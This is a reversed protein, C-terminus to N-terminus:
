SLLNLYLLGGGDERRGRRDPAPSLSVCPAPSPPLNPPECCVLIEFASTVSEVALPNRQPPPARLPLANNCKSLRSAGRRCERCCSVLSTVVGLVPGLSVSPGTQCSIRFTNRAPTSAWDPQDRGAGPGASTPPSCPLPPGPVGGLAPAPSPHYRNSHPLPRAGGGSQMMRPSSLWTWAPHQPGPWPTGGM